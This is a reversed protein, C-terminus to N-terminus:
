VANRCPMVTPEGAYIPAPEIISHLPRDAVLPRGPREDQDAGLREFLTERPLTLCDVISLTRAGKLRGTDLEDGFIASTRADPM